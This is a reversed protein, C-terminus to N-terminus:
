TSPKWASRAADALSPQDFVVPTLAALDEVTAGMELALIAAEGVSRAAPGCAGAGLVLGSERDHVIRVMAGTKGIGTTVAHHGAEGAQTENLGCWSVPLPCQFYTPIAVPDWPADLGCAVEAVVQGHRAAGGAEFMRGTGSGAALIRTESTM